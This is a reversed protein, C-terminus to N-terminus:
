GNNASQTPSPSPTPDKLPAPNTDIPTNNKVNSALSCHSFDGKIANPVCNEMWGKVTESKSKIMEPFEHIDPRAPIGYFGVIVAGIIVVAAAQQILGGKRGGKRSRSM